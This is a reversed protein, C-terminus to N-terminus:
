RSLLREFLRDPDLSSIFWFFINVRDETEPPHNIGHHSAKMSQNLTQSSDFTNKGNKRFGTENTQLKSSRGARSRGRRSETFHVLVVASLLQKTTDARGEVM